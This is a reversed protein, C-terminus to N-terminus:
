MSVYLFLTTNLRFEDKNNSLAKICMTPAIHQQKVELLGSVPDWASSMTPSRSLDM